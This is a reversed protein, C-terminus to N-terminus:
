KCNTFNNRLVARASEGSHRSALLSVPEDAKNGLRESVNQFRPTSTPCNCPARQVTGLSLVRKRITLKGDRFKTPFLTM